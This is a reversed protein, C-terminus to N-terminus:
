VFYEGKPVRDEGKKEKAMSAETLDKADNSSTSNDDSDILDSDEVIVVPEAVEPNNEAADQLQFILKCVLVLFNRNWSIM